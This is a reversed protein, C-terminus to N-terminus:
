ENGILLTLSKNFSLLHQTFRQTECIPEFCVQGNRIRMWGLKRPLWKRFNGFDHWEGWEVFLESFQLHSPFNLRCVYPLQELKPNKLPSLILWLRPDEIDSTQHIRWVSLDFLWNASCSAILEFEGDNDLDTRVLRNIGKPLEAIITREVKLTSLRLWIVVLSILLIAFAVFGFLWRRKM